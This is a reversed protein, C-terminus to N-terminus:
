KEVGDETFSIIDDVTFSAVNDKITAKAGKKGAFDYVEALLSGIHTAVTFFGRPKQAQDSRKFTNKGSWNIIEFDSQWDGAQDLTAM